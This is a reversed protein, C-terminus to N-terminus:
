EKGVLHFTQPEGPIVIGTYTSIKVHMLVVARGLSLLDCRVLSM